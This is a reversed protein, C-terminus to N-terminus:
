RMCGELAKPLATDAGVLALLGEERGDRSLMVGHEGPATLAAYLPGERLDIVPVGATELRAEAEVRVPGDAFAFDLTMTKPIPNAILILSPVDALCYASIAILSGTGVTVATVPMGPKEVVRWGAGPPLTPTPTAPAPAPAPTATQAAPEAGPATAPDFTLREECGDYGSRPPTCFQGHLSVIVGAGDLRVDQAYSSWAPELADDRSLWVTVPCGASGCFFSWANACELGMLNQVYDPRGDGNLDGTQLYGETLSPSGGASRCDAFARETEAAIEAPLNQARASFTTLCIIALAYALRPMRTDKQARAAPSRKHPRFTQILQRSLYRRLGKRLIPSSPCTQHHRLTKRSRPRHCASEGAIGEHSRRKAHTRGESKSFLWFVGALGTSLNRSGIPGFDM